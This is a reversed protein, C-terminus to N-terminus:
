EVWYMVTLCLGCLNTWDLDMWHISHDRLVSREWGRLLLDWVDSSAQSARGPVQLQLGFSSEEVYLLPHLVFIRGGFSCLEQFHLFPHSHWLSSLHSSLSHLSSCSVLQKWKQSVNYLHYFTRLAGVPSYAVRGVGEKHHLELLCHHWSGPCLIPGYSLCSLRQVAESQSVTHHLVRIWLQTYGCGASKAREQRSQSWLASSYLSSASPQLILVGFCHFPLCNTIRVPSSCGCELLNVSPLAQQKIKSLHLANSIHMSKLCIGFGSGFHWMESPNQVFRLQLLYRRFWGLGFQGTEHLNPVFISPCLCKPLIYFCISKVGLEGYFPFSPFCPKTRHSVPRAALWPIAEGFSEKKRGTLEKPFSTSPVQWIIETIPSLNM